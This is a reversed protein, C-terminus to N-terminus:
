YEDWNLSILEQTGHHGDDDPKGFYLSCSVALLGFILGSTIMGGTFYRVVGSKDRMPEAISAFSFHMIQCVGATSFLLSFGSWDVSSITPNTYPPSSHGKGEYPGVFLAVLATIIGM